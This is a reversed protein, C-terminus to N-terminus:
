VGELRYLATKCNFLIEAQSGLKRLIWPLWPSKWRQPNCHCQMLPAMRWGKCLEFAVPGTECPFCGVLGPHHESSRQNWWTGDGFMTGSLGGLFSFPFGKVFVEHNIHKVCTWYMNFNFWKRGVFTIKGVSCNQFMSWLLFSWIWSMDQGCYRTKPGVKKPSPNQEVLWVAAHSASSVKM